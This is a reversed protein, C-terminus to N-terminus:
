FSKCEPLLPAQVSIRDDPIFIADSKYSIKEIMHMKVKECVEMSAMPVVNIQSYGHTSLTVYFLFTSLGM